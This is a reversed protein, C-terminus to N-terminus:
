AAALLQYQVTAGNIFLVLTVAGTATPATEVYPGLEFHLLAKQLEEVKAELEAVRTELEDM